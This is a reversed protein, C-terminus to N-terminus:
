NFSSCLNHPPFSPDVCSAPLSESSPNASSDPFGSPDCVDQEPDSFAEDILSLIMKLVRTRYSLPPIPWLIAENFMHKYIADQVALDKVIPGPLVCLDAPEVLQFYQAVLVRLASNTDSNLGFMGVLLQHV